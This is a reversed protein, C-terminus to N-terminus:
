AWGAPMAPTDAGPAIGLRRRATDLHALMWVKALVPRGAYPNEADAAASAGDSNAQRVQDPTPKM